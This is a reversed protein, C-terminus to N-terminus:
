SDVESHNCITIYGGGTEDDMGRNHYLVCRTRGDQIFDFDSAADFHICTSCVVDPINSMM